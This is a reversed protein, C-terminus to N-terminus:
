KIPAWPTDIYGTSINPIGNEDVENYTRAWWIKETSGEASYYYKGLYDDTDVDVLVSYDNANDVSFSPNNIHLVQGCMNTSKNIIVYCFAMKIPM